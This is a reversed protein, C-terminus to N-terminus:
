GMQPLLPREVAEEVGVEGEERHHKLGMLFREPPRYEM